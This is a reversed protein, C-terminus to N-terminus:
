DLVLLNLALILNQVLIHNVLETNMLRIRSFSILHRPIARIHLGPSLSQNQFQLVSSIGEYRELDCISERSDNEALTASTHSPWDGQRIRRM